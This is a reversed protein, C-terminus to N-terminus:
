GNAVERGADTLRYTICIVPRYTQPEPRGMIPDARITKEPGEKISEQEIWKRETLASLTNGNVYGERGIRGGAQTPRWELLAGDPLLARLAELQRPTAKARRTATM